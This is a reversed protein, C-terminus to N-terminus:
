YLNLTQNFNIYMRQQQLEFLSAQILDPTRKLEQTLKDREVSLLAVEAQLSKILSYCLSHFESHFGAHQKGCALVCENSGVTKTISNFLITRMM